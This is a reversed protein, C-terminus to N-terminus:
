EEFDEALDEEATDDEPSAGEEEGGSIGALHQGIRFLWGSVRDADEIMEENLLHLAMKEAVEMPIAKASEQLAKTLRRDLTALGSVLIGIDDPTMEAKPDTLVNADMEDSAEVVEEMYEEMLVLLKAYKDLWSDDSPAEGEAKPEEDGTPSAGNVFADMNEADIPM